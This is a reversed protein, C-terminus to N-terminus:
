TVAQIQIEQGAKVPIPVRPARKLLAPFCASQIINIGTDTENIYIKFYKTTGASTINLCIESIYGDKKVIYTRQLANGRWLCYILTTDACTFSDTEITGDTHTITMQGVFATAM